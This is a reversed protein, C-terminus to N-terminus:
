NCDYIFRLFKHPILVDSGNMMQRPMIRWRRATIVVFAIGGESAM